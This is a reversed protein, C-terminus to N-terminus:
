IEKDFPTDQLLWFDLKLSTPLHFVNFQSASHVAEVIYLPDVVFEKRPLSQFAEQVRKSDSEKAEIIFDIDHSTRQRGYRIVSVSGTVMYQIHIKNLFSTINKLLQEQPTSNEGLM